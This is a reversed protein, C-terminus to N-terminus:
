HDMREIPQLKLLPVPGLSLRKNQLTLPVVLKKEGKGDSASLLDLMFFAMNAKKQKIWGLEVMDQIAKKYGYVRSSFSGLPYMNEDLTLTGEIEALIPPWDIKLLRVELVGGGDRWEALSKPFPRKPQFDSLDAIFTLTLPASSPPADKFCKELNTLQTSLSLKLNLPDSLQNVTLSLNKLTLPQLLDEKVSSLHPIQVTLKEVHFESNLTMLGTTEELHLIGLPYPSAHPLALRHDGPLSIYLAYRDWPSMSVIAEQGQWEFHHQPAKLHPDTLTARVTFPTVSMKLKSYSLPIGKKRLDAAMVNIRAELWKKSYAAFTLWAPVGIAILLCLGIILKKHNRLM